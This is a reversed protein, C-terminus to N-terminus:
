VCGLKIIIIDNTVVETLVTDGTRKRIRGIAKGAAFQAASGKTIKKSGVNGIFVALQGPVLNNVGAPAFVASPPVFAEIVTDGDNSDATTDFDVKAQAVGNIVVADATAVETFIDSVASEPALFDGKSGSIAKKLKIQETFVETSEVIDGPRQSDEVM